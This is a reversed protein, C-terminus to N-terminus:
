AARGHGPTGRGRRAPFPSRRSARTAWGSSTRSPCATFMAARARSPTNIDGHADLWIVGVRQQREALATAVGAVSGMALSHDGGLVLPTVGARVADATVRALQRCVTRYGPHIRPRLERTARAPLRDLNGVDDVEHGLACATRGTARHPARVAGYGGWPPEGGLRAPVGIIRVHAPRRWVGTGLAGGANLDHRGATPLTATTTPAYPLVRM